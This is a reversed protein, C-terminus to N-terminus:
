GTINNDDIEQKDIFEIQPVAQPRAILKMFKNWTIQYIMKSEIIGTSSRSM